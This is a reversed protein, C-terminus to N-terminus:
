RLPYWWAGNKTGAHLRNCGIALKRVDLNDLGINMEEWSDGKNTSKYVGGKKIGAYIFTTVKDIVLAYVSSGGLGVEEWSGGGDTTKYVGYGATGAYVVETNSPDIAFSWIKKGELGKLGWSGGGNETKYVGNVTGAYVVETNLPDIALSRIDLETLGSNVAVWKGSGDTTKYVGGTATGAYLTTGNPAIALAYLWLNGELGNNVQFWNEGGDTTKFIGEGWTTAYVTKCDTPDVVLGFVLHGGLGKPSWNEGGDTSKYVGRYWTGAYIAQCDACIGFSRVTIGELGRGQKWTPPYGRLIAPLYVKVPTVRTAVSARQEDTQESDLIVTNTITTITTPSLVNATVTVLITQGEIGLSPIEWYITNDTEGSPPLSYGDFRVNAGALIDTIVVGTAVMNGTNEYSITYVLETGSLMVDRNAKKSIRLIPTSRVTTTITYTDSVGEECTVNATNTIITGDTLPTTVTVVLTVVKREEGEGILSGMEWTIVQGASPTSPEYSTYDGTTTIFNTNIPLTETIKVLTANGNGTNSISITYTLHGGAEVFESPEDRKVIHL